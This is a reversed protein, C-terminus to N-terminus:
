IACRSVSCHLAMCLCINYAAKECSSCMTCMLSHVFTKFFLRSVAELRANFAATFVSMSICVRQFQFASMALGM